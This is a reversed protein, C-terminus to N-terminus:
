RRRGQSAERMVEQSYNEREEALLRMLLTDAYSLDDPGFQVGAQRIHDIEAVIALQRGRLTTLEIDLKISPCELCAADGGSETQAEGCQMSGPCLKERRFLWYYV